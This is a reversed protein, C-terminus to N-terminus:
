RNRDIRILRSPDFHLRTGADADEEGHCQPSTRFPAIPESLDEALVPASVGLLPLGM